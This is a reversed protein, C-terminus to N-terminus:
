LPYVGVEGLTVINPGDVIDGPLDPTNRSIYPLSIDPAVGGLAELLSTIVAEGARSPYQQSPAPYRFARAGRPDTTLDVVEGPGLSDFYNELGQAIIAHRDTYPSLLQGPAVVFPTPDTNLEITVTVGADTVTQVDLEVFESNEADWIMLQPADAGTLSAVGGPLDADTTVTFETPSVITAVVAGVPYTASYTPWPNVDAWGGTTGYGMSLQAALDAPQENPPVVVVYAREPMVASAPPVLYNRAAILTGPPVDTRANPGATTGRKALVCVLV